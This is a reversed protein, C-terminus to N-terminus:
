LPVSCSCNLIKTSYSKLVSLGSVYIEIVKFYWVNMLCALNEANEMQALRSYIVPYFPISLIFLSAIVEGSGVFQLYYM